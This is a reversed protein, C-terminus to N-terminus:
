RYQYKTFQLIERTINIIALPSQLMFHFLSVLYTTSFTYQGLDHGVPDENSYM